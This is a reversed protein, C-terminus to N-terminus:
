KNTKRLRDVRERVDKFGYDVQALKRYMELAEGTQGQQEYARALNYRLDKGVGDDKIEYSDIAQKYIDIADAFWEKMYFCVGMNNMAAVKTHPDKRAEQFM